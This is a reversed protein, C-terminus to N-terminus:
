HYDVIEMVTVADVSAWDLGGDEKLPAPNATPKLILRKGDALDVALEGKRDGGLEHCRGPLQRLDELSGAAQIDSLRAMGKKACADGHVRRFADRSDCTKKLRRTAFSLEM